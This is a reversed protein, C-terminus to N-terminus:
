LVGKFTGRRDTGVGVIPSNVSSCTESHEGLVSSEAGFLWFTAPVLEQIHANM